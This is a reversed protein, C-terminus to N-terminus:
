DEEEEEGRSQEHVIELVVPGGGPSSLERKETLLGHLKSILTLAQVAASAQGNTKAMNLVDQADKTISEATIEFRKARKKRIEEIRASVKVNDILEKAKRNVSEPKMRSTDYARRYAESANGTEIFEKAFNEQKVTLGNDLRGRSM